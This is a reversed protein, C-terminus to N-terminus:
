RGDEVGYIQDVDELYGRHEHLMEDMPLIPELGAMQRKARRDYLVVNVAAALNLCFHSPIAVFRHCHRLMVSPISGDEPGFVYLANEPHEFQSLMEAGPTLEIAVPVVSPPFADFFRDYERIEVHKYGKMREERPLRKKAEVDQRVRDGSFWVQGIGFCSAARVVAGVNHGYKPNCLAVAPAVGVPAADKGVLFSDYTTM